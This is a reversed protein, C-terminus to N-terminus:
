GVIGAVLRAWWEPKTILVTMAFGQGAAFVPLAVKYVVHVRRNVILDRVIGMVVLLDVGAYFTGPPLFPLRGIGAASLACTALLMLRRHHELKKRWAIALTFCVAFCGIDWLPIGLLNTVNQHLTHTYWRAMTVTTTVGLAFIGTGLAAGFWGVNRHWRVSRARVLASQLIFFVLWGSFVIGHLWLIWPKEMAPHVLNKNVTFSFGYFVVLAIFVSMFAYFYKEVVRTLATKQSVAILPVPATIAM